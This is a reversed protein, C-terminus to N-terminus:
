RANESLTLSGAIEVAATTAREQCRRPTQMTVVLRRNPLAVIEHRQCWPAGDHTYELEIWGSEGRREIHTIKQTPTRMAELAPLERPSQIYILENNPGRLDFPGPDDPFNNSCVAYGHPWVCTFVTTELRWADIDPGVDIDLVDYLSQTYQDIKSTYGGENPIVRAFLTGGSIVEM